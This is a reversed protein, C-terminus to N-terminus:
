VSLTMQLASISSQINLYVLHGRMKLGGKLLRLKIIQNFHILASPM